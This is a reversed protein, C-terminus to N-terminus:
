REFATFQLGAAWNDYKRGETTILYRTYGTLRHRGTPWFHVGLEPYVASLWRDPVVITDDEKEASTRNDPYNQNEGADLYTTSLGQFTGVGVFPAIRTPMQLRTGLDAGAFWDGHGLYGSLGLRNSYWSVPYYEYGLEAGLLTSNRNNRYQAGGSAYWGGLGAVHRADSAQKLKELPESKEAGEAYKEAYVPDDMAYRSKWLKACGTCTAANSLLGVVCLM